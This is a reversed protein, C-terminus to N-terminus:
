QRVRRPERGGDLVGPPDREAGAHSPRVAVTDETRSAELAVRRPVPLIVYKVNPRSLQLSGQHCRRTRRLQCRGVTSELPQVSLPAVLATRTGASTRRGARRVRKYERKPKAPWIFGSRCGSERTISFPVRLHVNYASNAIPPSHAARGYRPTRDGRSSVRRVRCVRIGSRTRRRNSSLFPRVRLLAKSELARALDPPRQANGHM